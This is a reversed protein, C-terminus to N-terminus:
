MKYGVGIHLSTTKLSSSIPIYGDKVMGIVICFPRYDVTTLLFLNNKIPLEFGTFFRLSLPTCSYSSKYLSQTTEGRKKAAPFDIGLGCGFDLSFNKVIESVNYSIRLSYSNCTVSEHIEELPTQSPWYKLRGIYEHTWSFRNYQLWYNLKGIKWSLFAGFAFTNDKYGYEDGQDVKLKVFSPNIGIKLDSKGFAKQLFSLFFLSAFVGFIVFSVIRNKHIWKM